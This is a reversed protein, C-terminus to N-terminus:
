DVMKKFVPDRLTGNETIMSYEVECKLIPNLWVTKKEEHVEDPITREPAITEIFTQALHKLMSDDFGSGVRGRYIL